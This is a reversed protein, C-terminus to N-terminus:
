RAGPERPAGTLLDVARRAAEEIEALSNGIAADGGQFRVLQAHTVVIALLNVLEHVLDRPMRDPAAAGRDLIAVVHTPVEIGVSVATGSLGDGAADAPRIECARREGALLAALPALDAGPCLSAVTAAVPSGPLRVDRREAEAALAPSMAVVRRDDLTALLVMASKGDTATM